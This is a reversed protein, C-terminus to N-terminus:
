CVHAGLLLDGRETKEVPYVGGLDSAFVTVYLVSLDIEMGAKQSSRIPEGSACGSRDM